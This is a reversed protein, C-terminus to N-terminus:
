AVFARENAKGEGAKIANRAYVCSTRSCANWQSRQAVRAVIVRDTTRGVAEMKEM